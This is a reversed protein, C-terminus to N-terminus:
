LRIMPLVGHATRPSLDPDNKRAIFSEIVEAANLIHNHNTNLSKVLGNAIFAHPMKQIDEATMSEGDTDVINPVYVEGFVYHYEGSTYSKFSKAM